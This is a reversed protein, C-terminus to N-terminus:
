ITPLTHKDALFNYILTEDADIISRYVYEAHIVNASAIGGPDGIGLGTIGNAGWNSVVAANNNVQMSSSAGNFKLRIIGFAGVATGPAVTGAAGAYPRVQPTSTRQYLYHSTDPAKIIYQNAAWAVQKIVMYVMFPQAQTVSLKYLFNDADVTQIGSASWLPQNGGTPQALDRGSLLKDKWLSVLNSGDKTITTLDQSDYWAVTNGARILTEGASWTTANVTNSYASYHTM